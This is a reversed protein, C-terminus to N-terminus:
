WTQEYGKNNSFITVTRKKKKAFAILLKSIFRLWITLSYALTITKQNNMVAMFTLVNYKAETKM